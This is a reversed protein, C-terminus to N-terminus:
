AEKVFYLVDEEINSPLEDVIKVIPTKKDLGLCMERLKRYLRQAEYHTTPATKFDEYTM